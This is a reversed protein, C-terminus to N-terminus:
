HFSLFPLKPARSTLDGPESPHGVSLSSPAVSRNRGSPFKEVNHLCIGSVGVLNGASTLHIKAINRWKALQWHSLTLQGHVRPLTRHSCPTTLSVKRVGYDLWPKGRAQDLSYPAGVAARRM